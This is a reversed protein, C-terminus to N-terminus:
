QVLHKSFTRVTIDLVLITRWPSHAMQLVFSWVRTYWHPHSVHVLAENGTLIHILHTNDPSALSKTCTEQTNM